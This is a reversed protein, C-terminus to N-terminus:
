GRLVAVGTAQAEIQALVAPDTTCQGLRNVKGTGHYDSSGTVFLGLGRALRIGHAVAEEDHDPHHVELGALGAQAMAEIVSEDVLWGRRGAFPHAMVPVGGAQRVLRVAEIADPAYHTAFYPSGAYLYRAFAEDRSAVIGKTVMADAIHPRGLTAGPEVGDMVEEFTIPLDASLKQVIRQARTRRSARSRELEALLSPSVPDHLYGLLHVSIGGSQCSIEIGRVLTLHTSLAAAAAGDWGATTDHDTLAIVDLGADVASRVVDEPTQTGDSAVSHTHLDVLV